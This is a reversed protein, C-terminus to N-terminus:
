QWVPYQTNPIFMTEMEELILNREGERYMQYGGFSLENIDEDTLSNYRNPLFIINNELEVKLTSGYKTIVRQVNMVPYRKSTELDKIHILSKSSLINFKNLINKKSDM